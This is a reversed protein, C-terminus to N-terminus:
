KQGGCPAGNCGGPGKGCGGMGMKGFGGTQMGCEGDFKDTPLGSKSFINRIKEQLLAIDGKLAAIKEMDPIGKLNERQMSFRKLMMEQRLDITDNQFKRFPESPAGEQACNACGGGMGNSATAGGCLVVALSLSIAAISIKNM